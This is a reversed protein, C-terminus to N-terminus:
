RDADILTNRYRFLMLTERSLVKSSLRFDFKVMPLVKQQHVCLHMTESELILIRSLDDRDCTSSELINITM